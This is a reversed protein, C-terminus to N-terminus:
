KRFETDNGEKLTTIITIKKVPGDGVSETRLSSDEKIAIHIIRRDHANFPGITIPSGTTRVREGLQVAMRALADVRRSRYHDIDLVVRVPEKAKKNVMRNILIQLAELTRGHKGILIGDKDGSIDLCINGEKVSEQVEAEIDMRQLLEIMMHKANEAEEDM